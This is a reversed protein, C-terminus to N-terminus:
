PPPEALPRAAALAERWEDYAFLGRLRGQADLLHIAGNHVFGGSGDPVVVVQLDRLLRDLDDPSRPVAVIWQTGDARHLRAYAALAARDDRELDFSVSLLAVSPGAQVEQLAAQMRAFEGGLVQCVGPCSTYVFDVLYARPSGPADSWPQHLEGRSSLLAPPRAVISGHQLDLARREDYTWAKFGRTLGHAAALLAALTIACAALTAGLHPSTRRPASGL